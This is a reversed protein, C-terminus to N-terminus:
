DRRARSAALRSAGEGCIVFLAAVDDVLQERTVALRGDMWAILLEALGGVLLAATVDAIPDPDDPVGYFERAAAAMLGWMAHMADLRHRALAESGLAEAFAVRARRPDDTLNSVFADLVAHSKAHASADAAEYATLVAATAEGAIRDFLAVLLADLDDFGEYFYRPTLKAERCVSRVSTAQSGQSGLMELAADLLRERRESARDAATAGGYKGTM